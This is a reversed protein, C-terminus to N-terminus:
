HKLLKSQNVVKLFLNNQVAIAAKQFLLSYPTLCRYHSQIM